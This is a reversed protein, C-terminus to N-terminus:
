LVHCLKLAPNWKGSQPPNSPAIEKTEAKRPWMRQQHLDASTWWSSLCEASKCWSHIQGRSWSFVHSHFHMKQTLLTVQQYQNLCKLLKMRKLLHSWHRVWLCAYLSSAASYKLAKLIVLNQGVNLQHVVCLFVNWSCSVWNCQLIKKGNEEKYKFIEM